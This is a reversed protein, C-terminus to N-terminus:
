CGLRVLREARRKAGTVFIAALDSLSFVYEAQARIPVFWAALLLIAALCPHKLM